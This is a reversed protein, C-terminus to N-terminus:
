RAVLQEEVPVKQHDVKTHIPHLRLRHQEHAELQDPELKSSM